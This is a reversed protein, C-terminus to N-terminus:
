NPKVLLRDFAARYNKSAQKWTWSQTIDSRITCSLREYADQSMGRLGDFVDLVSKTEPKIFFGNEGDRILDPMNGVRTTIVPVGCAAAELAPNPTGEHWSTNLYFDMSHYFSPMEEESLVGENRGTILKKLITLPSKKKYVGLRNFGYGMASLPAAVADLLDANKAAKIKGVWGIIPHEHSYSRVTQPQFHDTDVGNPAYVLDPLHPALLERLINSNVTVVRFKGLMELAQVFAEEPDSGRPLAADTNLGGGINYHSTVSAMFSGYDDESFHCQRSRELAIMTRWSCFYVPKGTLEGHRWSDVFQSGSLPALRVDPLNLALYRIRKEQVWGYDDTVCFIPHPADAQM